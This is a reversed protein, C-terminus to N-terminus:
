HSTSWALSRKTIFGHHLSQFPLHSGEVNPHLRLLWVWIVVPIEPFIGQQLFQHVALSRDDSQLSFEPPEILMKTRQNKWKFGNLSKGMTVFFGGHWNWRTWITWKTLLHFGLLQGEQLRRQCLMAKWTHTNSSTSSGNAERSPM